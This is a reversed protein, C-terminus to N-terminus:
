APAVGCVLAAGLSARRPAVEVRRQGPRHGAPHRRLRRDVDRTVSEGLFVVGWLVGFLPILFTVSIARAAGLQAILRFYLLYALATCLLALAAVSAWAAAGPTAAPWLWWAPLALVVSAALQSGAAVALPPVGAASRKAYNAGFGYCLTAALCAGIALTASVSHEGPSLGAKDWGLWAVGAFGIALGM